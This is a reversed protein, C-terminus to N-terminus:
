APIPPPTARLESDVTNAALLSDLAEQVNVGSDTAALATRAQQPTFGM